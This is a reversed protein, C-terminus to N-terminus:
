KRPKNVATSIDIMQITAPNQNENDETLEIREGKGLLEPMFSKDLDVSGFEPEIRRKFLTIRPRDPEIKIEIATGSLDVYDGVVAPATYTSDQQANVFGCVLFVAISFVFTRM